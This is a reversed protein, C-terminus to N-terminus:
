NAEEIKHLEKVLLKVDNKFEQTTKFGNKNTGNKAIDDLVTSYAELTELRLDWLQNYNEKELESIANKDEELAAVYLKIHGSLLLSSVFREDDVNVYDLAQKFNLIAISYSKEKINANMEDLSKIMYTYKVDKELEIISDLKYKENLDSEIEKKLKDIQKESMRYQLVALIAAIALVTGVTWYLLNTIRDFSNNAQELVFNQLEFIQEQNIM